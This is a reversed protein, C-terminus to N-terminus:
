RGGGWGNRTWQGNQQGLLLLLLVITTLWGAYLLICRWFSLWLWLWWWWWPRRRRHYLVSIDQHHPGFGSPLVFWVCFVYVLGRRWGIGGLRDEILIYLSFLIRFNFILADMLLLQETCLLSIIFSACGMLGTAWNCEWSGM